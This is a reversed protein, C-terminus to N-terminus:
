EIYLIVNQETDPPLDIPQPPDTEKLTFTGTAVSFEYSDWELNEILVEGNEDTTFSKQYKLVPNDNEDHGIIKEGKLEFSLNPTPPSTKVSFSSLRDISFAVDTVEGEIVSLPPKIPQAVEEYSYTRDTSYGNKTVEVMYSEISAPAGPLVLLGNDDTEYYADISPSVKNNTIHVTAQPVPEGSANIVRIRLTGGSESEVSPPAIDTISFIEGASAGQWSIIIKVRKYDTPVPDDPALGDYPDDIYLIKTKIKFKINSKTEEEEQPINGPPVGGITGIEQYDMGKIKELKEKALSLAINKIKTKNAIKILNQFALMISFFTLSFLFIIVIVEIFSFCKKSM